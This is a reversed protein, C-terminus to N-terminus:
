YKTHQGKAEFLALVRKKMSRVLKQCTEPTIKYWEVQVKEWLHDDNKAIFNGINGKFIGWLNEIPNMDPSQSPWDLTDFECRTLYEKILGSTHKPDNDQLFIPDSIKLKEISEELNNRLISLYQKSDMKGDIRVLNGVGQSSFCGWVMIKGGGFKVTGKLNEPKLREGLKRRVWRTGPNNVREFPCEDSWLVREWDKDPAFMWTKAMEFRKKVNEPRLYPKECKIYMGLEIEHQYNIVTGSSLRNNNNFYSNFKMTTKIIETINISQHSSRIKNISLFVFCIVFIDFYVFLMYCNVNNCVTSRSVKKQFEDTVKATLRKNNFKEKSKLLKIIQNKQAKPVTSSTGTGIKRGTQGTEQYRDLIRQVSSKSIGTKKAIERCSMNLERFVIIKGKMLESIHKSM